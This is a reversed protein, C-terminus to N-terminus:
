DTEIRCNELYVHPYNQLLTPEEIITGYEYFHFVRMMGILAASCIDVLIPKIKAREDSTLDQRRSFLKVVFDCHESRDSMEGLGWIENYCRGHRFFPSEELAIRLGTHQVLYRSLQKRFEQSMDLARQLDDNGPFSKKLDQLTSIVRGLATDVDKPLMMYRGGKKYRFSSEVLEERRIPSLLPSPAAEPICSM